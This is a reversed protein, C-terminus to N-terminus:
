LEEGEKINFIDIMYFTEEMISLKIFLVMIVDILKLITELSKGTYPFIIYKKDTYGYNSTLCINLRFREYQSRRHFLYFKIIVFRVRESVRIKFFCNNSIEKEYENFDIERFGIKILGKKFDNLKM